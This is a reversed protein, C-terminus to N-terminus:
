QNEDVHSHKSFSFILLFWAIIMLTGGLPTIPGLIFSISSLGLLTQLSLLLISGSFMICGGVMLKLAIGFLQSKWQAYYFSLSILALGHIMLYRLGTELSNLREPSIQTKLWHAALAGICVGILMFISGIVTYINHKM